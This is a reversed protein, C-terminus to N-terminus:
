KSGVGVNFAISIREQTSINPEVYHELWSPFMILKGNEPTVAFTGSSYETFNEVLSENTLIQQVVSPHKFVIKGSNPTYDVYYVGSFASNPHIHPRNFSSPPNINIWLNTLGVQCDPKFGFLHVLSEVRKLIEDVLMTIQSNPVTLIDSQWGLFNSKIVGAEHMRLDFAYKKLEVNDINDLIETAIFSSFINDIVM